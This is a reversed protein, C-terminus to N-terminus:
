ELGYSKIKSLLSPHSIELLRAARTRNGDTAALAKRILIKEMAQKGSKLSYGSIIDDVGNGRTEGGQGLPSFLGSNLEHEEALIVAREITNELERVNGPWTHEMLMSIAEPSIG